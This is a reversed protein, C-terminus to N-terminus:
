NAELSRIKEWDSKAVGRFIFAITFLKFNSM